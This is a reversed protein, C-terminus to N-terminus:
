PQPPSWKAGIVMITGPHGPLINIRGQQVLKKLILSVNSTSPIRCAAGIDRFTPSNGDHLIKYHIIYQLVTNPDHRHLLKPITSM